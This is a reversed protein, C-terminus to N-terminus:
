GHATRVPATEELQRGAAEFRVQKDALTRYSKELSLYTNRETRTRAHAARAAFRDAKAYLEHAKTM